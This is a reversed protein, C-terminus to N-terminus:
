EEVRIHRTDAQARRGGESMVVDEEEKWRDEESTVDTFIDKLPRAQEAPGEERLADELEEATPGGM